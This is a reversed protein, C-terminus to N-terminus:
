YFVFTRSAFHLYFTYGIVKVMVIAAINLYFDAVHVLSLNCVHAKLYLFYRRAFSAVGGERAAQNKRSKYVPKEAPKQKRIKYGSKEAPMFFFAVVGRNLPITASM